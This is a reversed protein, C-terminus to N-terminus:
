SPSPSLLLNQPPIAVPIKPKLPISLTELLKDKESKSLFRNADNRLLLEAYDTNNWLLSFLICKLFSEKNELKEPNKIYVCDTAEVYEGDGLFSQKLHLLQFGLQGCLRHLDPFLKQGEYVEKFQSEVILGLSKGIVEQGGDMVQYEAGQVDIKIFDFPADQVFQQDLTTVSLSVTKVIEFFDAHTYKRLAAMKPKLVSSCGPARTLHFPITGIRDFVACPRVENYHKKEILRKAEDPDAEIAVSHLRKFSYLPLFAGGRGDRAGIDLIRMALHPYGTELLQFFKELRSAQDTVLRTMFKYLAQYLYYPLLCKALVHFFHLLPILKQM